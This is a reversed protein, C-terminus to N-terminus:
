LREDTVQVFHPCRDDQERAVQADVVLRREGRRSAVASRTTGSNTLIRGETRRVPEREEGLRQRTEVALQAGAAACEDNAAAVDDLLYPADDGLGAGVRDVHAPSTLAYACRRSALSASATGRRRWSPTM